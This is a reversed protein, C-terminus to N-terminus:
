PDTRSARSSNLEIHTLGPASAINNRCLIELLLAQSLAMTDRRKVRAVYNASLLSSLYNRDLKIGDKLREQTERHTM